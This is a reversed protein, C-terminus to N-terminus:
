IWTKKVETSAPPLHDAERGPRKVGPSLAGPVWQIPPQTSGLAPRSSMSFHFNKVKGPSSSRASPRGARLWDSNVTGTFISTLNLISDCWVCSLNLNLSNNNRALYLTRATTSIFHANWVKQIYYQAVQYHTGLRYATPLVGQVLSWGTALRCGVCLVYICILRRCLCGHRSHSEFGRDWRELSRLCNM